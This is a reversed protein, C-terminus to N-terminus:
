DVYADHNRKEIITDGNRSTKREGKNAKMRGVRHGDLEFVRKQIMGRMPREHAVEEPVPKEGTEVLFQVFSYSGDAQKMEYSLIHGGKERISVEVNEYGAPYKVYREFDLFTQAYEGTEYHYKLFGNKLHNASRLQVNAQVKKNHKSTKTFPNLVCGSAGLVVAVVIVAVLRGSIHEKKM